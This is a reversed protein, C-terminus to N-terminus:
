FTMFVLGIYDYFICYHQLTFQLLKLEFIQLVIHSIDSYDCWKYTENRLDFHKKAPLFISSTNFYIRIVHMGYYLEFVICYLVICYLVICYLVISFKHQKFCYADSELNSVM